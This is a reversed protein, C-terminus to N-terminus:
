PVRTQSGPLEYVLEGAESHLFSLTYLQYYTGHLAMLEDHTGLEVIRGSLLVAIRSAQAVTSLRHAIIFSTRGQLLRSLARQILVETQTDVSSTAEDMVLIRPNALLARAFALLQRQGVSLIVGREGVETQYGHEMRTIFEHAGVAEAAAQVEEDTADLRGYRINDAVTGSFLFTDQLVIGIQRRLSALTVERIDVGDITIRGSWVDYFRGLLNIMSSKGAGTPGVFAITEGPQVDLNIDHLVPENEEYGFTVHEFVVHGTIPPLERANPSETIDPPTDLLAFIREGGAMAAQFTNYRAALDRIPNFFRRVYFVFAVLAGASLQGDLVQTGGYWVVLATALADLADVSPFFIASLRAAATNAALNERNVDRFMSRNYDERAFSQIVRVGTINEQLRANVIGISARTRRYADRARVRWVSTAAFMIPLVVFTMLSLKVHMSLMVVIIGGLTVLDSLTGVIAWTVMEQLVGVDSLFRSMLRGVEYNNFFRLSLRHVHEFMQQRIDYITQQGMRTLVVIQAYRTGWSLLMVGLYLLVIQTLYGLDGKIIGNDIAQKTLYPGALDALSVIGMLLIGLVMQKIYPRVYSLLRRTIRPDFAKGLVDDEDQQSRWNPPRKKAQETM